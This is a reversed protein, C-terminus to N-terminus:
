LPRIIEHSVTQLMFLTCAVLWLFFFSSIKCTTLEGEGVSTAWAFALLTSSYTHLPILSEEGMGLGHNQAAKQGAQM